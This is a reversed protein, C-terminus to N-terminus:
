ISYKRDEIIQEGYDVIIKVILAYSKNVNEREMYKDVYFKFDNDIDYLKSMRAIKKQFPCPKDDEYGSELAVCIGDRNAFCDRTCAMM